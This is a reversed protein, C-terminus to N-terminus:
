KNNANTEHVSTCLMRWSIHHNKILTGKGGAASRFLNCTGPIDDSHRGGPRLIKISLIKKRASTTRQAFTRDASSAYRRSTTRVTPPHRTRIEWALNPGRHLNPTPCAQNHTQKCECDPQRAMQTSSRNAYGSGLSQLTGELSQRQSACRRWEVWCYRWSKLEATTRRATRFFFVFVFLCVFLVFYILIYLSMTRVRRASLWALQISQAAGLERPACVLM